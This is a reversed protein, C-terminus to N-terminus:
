AHSEGKLRQEDILRWLNERSAPLLNSESSFVANNSPSYYITRYAKHANSNGALVLCFSVAIMLTAGVMGHDFLEPENFLISSAKLLLVILSGFVLAKTIVVIKSDPPRLSKAVASNGQELYLQECTIKDSVTNTLKASM